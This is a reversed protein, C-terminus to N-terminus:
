PPISHLNRLEGHGITLLRRMTTRLKLRQPNPDDRRSGVDWSHALQRQRRRDSGSGPPLPLRMDVEADTVAPRCRRQFGIDLGADLAAHAESFVSRVTSAPGGPVMGHRSVGAVISSHLLIYLTGM